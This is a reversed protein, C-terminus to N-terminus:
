SCLNILIKITCTECIMSLFLYSRILVKLILNIIYIYLRLPYKNTGGHQIQIRRRRTVRPGEYGYSLFYM